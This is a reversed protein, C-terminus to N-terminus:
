MSIGEFTGSGTTRLKANSESTLKGGVAGYDNYRDTALLNNMYALASGSPWNSNNLM